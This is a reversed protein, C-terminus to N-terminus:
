SQRRRFFAGPNARDAPKAASLEDVHRNSQRNVSKVLEM